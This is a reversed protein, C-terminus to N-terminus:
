SSLASGSFKLVEDYSRAGFARQVFDRARADQGAQKLARQARGVIAFVNGDTDVLKCSVSSFENGRLITVGVARTEPYNKLLDRRSRVCELLEEWEVRGISAEARVIQSRFRCLTEQSALAWTYLSCFPTGDDLGPCRLSDRGRFTVERSRPSTSISGPSVFCNSSRAGQDWRSRASGYPRM